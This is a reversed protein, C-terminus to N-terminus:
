DEITQVGLAEWEKTLRALNEKEIKEAAVLTRDEEGEFLVIHQPNVKARQRLKDIM